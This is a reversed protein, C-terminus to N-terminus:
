CCRTWSARYGRLDPPLVNQRFDIDWLYLGGYPRRVHLHVHVHAM